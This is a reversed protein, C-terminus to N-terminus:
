AEPSPYIIEQTPEGLEEWVCPKLQDAHVEYSEGKPLHLVYSSEGVRKEVQYPGKWWSQLKVGGVQKPRLLWM